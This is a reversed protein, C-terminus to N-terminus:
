IRNNFSNSWYSAIIKIGERYKKFDINKVFYGSFGLSKCKFYDETNSSTTHIVVPLRSFRDHKRIYILFEIGNMVPMNLDLLIFYPLDSKEANELYNIAEQGNEAQIINLDAYDKKLIKVIALRTIKNDEVLLLNM